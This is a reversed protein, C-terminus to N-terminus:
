RFKVARFLALCLGFMLGAALCLFGDTIFDEKTLRGRSSIFDVLLNVAFLIGGFQLLGNFFVSRGAGAVRLAQHEGEKRPSM